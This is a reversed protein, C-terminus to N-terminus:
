CMKLIPLLQNEMYMFSFDSVGWATMLRRFLNGLQSPSYFVVVAGRCLSLVGVLLHVSLLFDSTSTGTISSSQPICLVRKNGLSGPGCQVPTTAGSLTRDIARISSFLNIYFRKQCNFQTSINLSRVWALSFQIFHFQKQISFQLTQFLVTLKYLFPNPM